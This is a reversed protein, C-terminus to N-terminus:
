YGTQGIQGNLQVDEGNWIIRCIITKRSPVDNLRYRLTSVKGPEPPIEEWETLSVGESILEIKLLGREGSIDGSNRIFLSVLVDQDDRRLEMEFNLPAIRDKLNRQIIFPLIIGGIIFLFIFDFILLKSLGSRGSRNRRGDTFKSQALRESRSYEYYLGNETRTEPANNIKRM